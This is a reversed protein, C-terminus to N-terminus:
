HTLPTDPTSTTAEASRMAVSLAFAIERALQLATQTPADDGPQTKNTVESKDRWLDPRRNKLWFVAASTDPAYHETYPVRLPQGDYQFIKVAPHTSGNARQYLSRAVTGDAIAKGRRTAELFEPHAKQWNFLTAVSVGWFDAIQADTLGLLTLKEAEEIYREDFKSPRGVATKKAKAKKKAM